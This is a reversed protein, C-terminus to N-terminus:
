GIESIQSEALMSFVGTYKFFRFVYKCESKDSLVMNVLSTMCKKQQSKTLSIRSTCSATLRQHFVCRCCLFDNEILTLCTGARCTSPSPHPTLTPYPLNALQFGYLHSFEPHGSCLNQLFTLGPKSLTFFSGSESPGDFRSFNQQFALPNPIGHIIHSGCQNRKLLCIHNMFILEFDEEFDRSYTTWM